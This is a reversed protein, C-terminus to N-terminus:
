EKISDPNIIAKYDDNFNCDSVALLVPSHENAGVVAKECTYANIIAQKEITHYPLVFSPLNSIDGLVAQATPKDTIIVTRNFYIDKLSNGTDVIASTCFVNGKNELRLYCRKSNPSFRKIALQGLCLLLYALASYIIMEVASINFYVVTQHLLMVKTKFITCIEVM